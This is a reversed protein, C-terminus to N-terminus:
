YQLSFFPDQLPLRFPPVEADAHVRGNREAYRVDPDANLEALARGARDAPVTVVETDPVLMPREHVVGADARVDAREAATLGKDRAVILEVTDTAAASGPLALLAACAAALPHLIRRATM